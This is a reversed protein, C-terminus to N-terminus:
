TNICFHNMNFFFTRALHGVNYTIIVKSIHMVVKLKSDYYADVENDDIDAYVVNVAIAVVLLLGLLYTCTKSAM